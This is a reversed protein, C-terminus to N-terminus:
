ADLKVQGAGLNKLDEGLETYLKLFMAAGKDPLQEHAPETLYRYIVKVLYSRDDKKEGPIDIRYEESLAVLFDDSANPLMSLCFNEVLKAM